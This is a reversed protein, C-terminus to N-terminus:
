SIKVLISFTKLAKEFSIRKGPGDLCLEKFYQMLLANEDMKATDLYDEQVHSEIHRSFIALNTVNYPSNFYRYQLYDEQM